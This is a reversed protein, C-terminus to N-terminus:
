PRDCSSENHGSEEDHGHPEGVVEGSFSQNVLCGIERGNLGEKEEKANKKKVKQVRSFNCRGRGDAIYELDAVNQAM